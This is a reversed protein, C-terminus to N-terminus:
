FLKIEKKQIELIKILCRILLSQPITNLLTHTEKPFPQTSLSVVTTINPSPTFVVLKHMLIVLLQSLTVSELRGGFFQHPYALSKSARLHNTIMKEMGGDLLARIRGIGKTSNILNKTVNKGEKFLLKATITKLFMRIDDMSTYFLSIGENNALDRTKFYLSCESYALASWEPMRNIFDFLYVGYEYSINKVLLSSFINWIEFLIALLVWDHHLSLIAPGVRGLYVDRNEFVGYLVEPSVQEDSTPKYLYWSVLPAEFQKILEEKVKTVLHKEVVETPKEVPAKKRTILGKITSEEYQM